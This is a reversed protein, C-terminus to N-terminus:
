NMEEPSLEITEIEPDDLDTDNAQLAAAEALLRDTLILKAEAINDLALKFIPDAGEPVDPVNVLVQGNEVGEILGRFRKRGNVMDALEVRAEHGAWRTFDRERVLPRDVGPSSVELHYARDIPDEVDLIPNIEQSVKECDTITFRGNADEAMVQLTCGNLPLVKVRVLEFGLGNIAREIIAAIRTELGTERIYRKEILAKAKKQREPWM